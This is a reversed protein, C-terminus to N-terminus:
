GFGTEGGLLVAAPEGRGVANLAEELATLQEGRGVLVPSVRNAVVSELMGACDAPGTRM